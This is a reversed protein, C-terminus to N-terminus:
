LIPALSASNEYILSASVFSSFHLIQTPPQEVIDGGDLIHRMFISWKYKNRRRAVCVGCQTMKKYFGLYQGHMM